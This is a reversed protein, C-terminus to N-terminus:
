QVINRAVNQNAPPIVSVGYMSTKSRFSNLYYALVRNMNLQDLGKVADYLDMVPIGTEQSVHFFYVTFNNAIEIDGCVGVFYSRIVDYEEPNVILEFNYFSDYLRITPDLRGRNDIVTAM